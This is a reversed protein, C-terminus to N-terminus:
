ARTWSSTIPCSLARSITCVKDTLRILTDVAADEVSGDITWTLQIRGIDGADDFHMDAHIAAAKAESKRKEAVKYFTSLQCGLLATLLHESAMPGEDNGGSAPPKDQIMTHGRMTVKCSVPSTPVADATEVDM